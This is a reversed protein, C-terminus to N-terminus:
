VLHQLFGHIRGPDEKAAARLVPEMILDHLDAVIVIFFNKVAIDPGNTFNVHFFPFQRYIIFAPLNEIIDALQLFQHQGIGGRDM